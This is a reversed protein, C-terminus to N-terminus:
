TAVYASWIFLYNIVNQSLTQAPGWRGAMLNVHHLEYFFLFQLVLRHHLKYIKNVQLTKM